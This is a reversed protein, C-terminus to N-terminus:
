PGTSKGLVQRIICWSILAECLTLYQIVVHLELSKRSLAFPSLATVWCCGAVLSISRSPLCAKWLSIVDLPFHCDHHFAGIPATSCRTTFLFHGALWPPPEVTNNEQLRNLAEGVLCDPSRWQKLCCRGAGGISSAAHQVIEEVWLCEDKWSSQYEVDCTENEVDSKWWVPTEKQREPTM